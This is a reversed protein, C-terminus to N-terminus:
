EDESFSRVVGRKSNKIFDILHDVLECDPYENSAVELAEKLLLDQNLFIIKFAGRLKKIDEASVGNRKLGIHNIGSVRMRNR